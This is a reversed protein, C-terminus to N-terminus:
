VSGDFGVSRELMGLVDSVIQAGSREERPRDNIISTYPQAEYRAGTVAALGQAINWLTNATYGRWFERRANAELRASLAALSVVRLECAVCSIVERSGYLRTIQFFEASGRGSM